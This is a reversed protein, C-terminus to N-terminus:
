ISLKRTTGNLFYISLLFYVGFMALIIINGLIAFDPKPICYYTLFPIIFLCLKRLKLRIRVRMIRSVKLFLFIFIAANGLLLTWGIGELAGSFDFISLCGIIFIVGVFYPFLALNTKYEAQLIYNFLNTMVRFFEAVVALMTFTYADHFKKDALVVMMSEATTLLFVALLIYIPVVKEAMDNWANARELRAVNHIKKIYIPYFYQSIINEIAAFTAAAVAIAVGLMGLVGEGYREDVVLRYLYLQCWLFINTGFIPMCFSAIKSYRFSEQKEWSGSGASFQSTFYRYVFPLTVIEAVLLGFFWYVATAEIYFAFTIALVTGIALTAIMFIIFKVRSVLINIGTLTNRHIVSLSLVGLVVITFDVYGFKEEYGLFIYLLTAFLISCFSTIAVAYCFFKYASLVTEKEKWEVLHRSFYMAMPNMLVYSFFFGVALLLYYHGVEEVSLISTIARLAVLSLLTQTVRGLGLIALDRDITLRM